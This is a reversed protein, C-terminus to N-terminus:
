AATACGGTPSRQKSPGLIGDRSSTSWIGLHKSIGSQLYTFDYGIPRGSGFDAVGKITKNRMDIAIVSAKKEHHDPIHMIYVVDGDHLSLAPYGAQIRKLTLETDQGQQLDPLMTAYAPSDVPVEYINIACDEEWHNGSGINSAKMKKTEAVWGVSVMGTCEADSCPRCHKDLQFFKIYGQLVIINRLYMPYGKLPKAGLPSPLPIYRLSHNELLLDCILIGRCLDVWGVSGSEGGITIVKNMSFYKVDPPSDVRMLKTSWSGTKSSYMHLDFQKDEYKWDIFARRLVALYFVDQDRCRLMTVERDFFMFGPPTRVRKLSPPPKNEAGGAQYVFYRINKADRRDDRPCIAVRLLVLDDEACIVKPMDGFASPDLGPCHVTFCSVRPPTAAWFTVLISRKGSRRSRRGDATTANTRDSLYGFPDLLISEPPPEEPDEAHIPPPTLIYPGKTTQPQPKSGTSSPDPLLSGDGDEM